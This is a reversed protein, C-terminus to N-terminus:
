LVTGTRQLNEASNSFAVIIEEPTMGNQRQGLWYDIGEPDGARDLVNAYLAEILQRDSPNTGYRSTYEDSTSILEAISQLSAGGRHLNVWYTYGRVDPQRGLAARYLRIVSSETPTVPSSTGTRTVNEASDSFAIILESISLGSELQAVWFDLGGDDGGRDLVNQYLGDVLQRNTPSDGFRTRFEPSGAFAAAISGLSEGSRYRGLWYPYGSNDPARGLAAQYLRLIQDDAPRSGPGPPSLLVTELDMIWLLVEYGPRAEILLAYRGDDSVDVVSAHEELLIRVPVGDELRVLYNDWTRNGIDESVVGVHTGFLGVSGDGSIVSILPDLSQSGELSFQLREEPVFNGFTVAANDFDAATFLTGDDSYDSLGFRGTITLLEDNELDLRRRGDIGKVEDFVYRGNGSLTPRSGLEFTRQAEGRTWIVTRRFPYPGSLTRQTWAIRNGDDSMTPWTARLDPSSLTTAVGSEADWLVVTGNSAGFEFALYAVWRGDSSVTPSSIEAALAITTVVGTEREMRHLTRNHLFGTTYVVWRGDGSIVPMTHIRGSEVAVIGEFTTLLTTDFSAEDASAPAVALGFSSIVLALLAFLKSRGVMSGISSRTHTADTVDGARHARVAESSRPQEFLGKSCWM